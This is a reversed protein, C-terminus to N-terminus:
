PVDPKDPVTIRTSMCRKFRRITLRYTQELKNVTHTIAHNAVAAIAAQSMQHRLAEDDVLRMMGCAIDVPDDPRCLLGNVGDAVLEPMGRANVGVVPLGFAMAEMISLPQNETKSATVFVDGLRPLNTSLLDHHPVYGLQVVQSTLRLQGIIENLKPGYPGNGILVLRAEPLHAVVHQFARLLIDLSKEPSIRGVYVFTPGHLQYEARLAVIEEHPRLSVPRMGNSILVPKSRLGRAILANRVAESPSIVTNCQSFIFLSYRWMLRQVVAHNPLRFAQLYGPDAYFTHFTGVSPIGLWKAGMLAEWGCGWETNVHIVDPKIALLKRGVSWFSPITIYLKPVHPVPLSFPSDHVKIAKPLVERKSDGWVRPRFIYVEHGRRSLELAQNLVAFTGGSCYPLFSDTFICIRMQVESPSKQHQKAPHSDAFM